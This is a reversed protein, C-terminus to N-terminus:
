VDGEVLEKDDALKLSWSNGDGAREEGVARQKRGTQGDQGISDKKGVDGKQAM